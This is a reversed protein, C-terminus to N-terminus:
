SVMYAAYDFSLVVSGHAFSIFKVTGGAQVNQFVSEGVFVQLHAGVPRVAGRGMGDFFEAHHVPVVQRLFEGNHGQPAGVPFTGHVLQEPDPLFLGVSDGIEAAMDPVLPCPLIAGDALGIAVLQADLVLILLPHKVLHISHKKVQLM